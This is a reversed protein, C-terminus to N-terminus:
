DLDLEIAAGSAQLESQLKRAEDFPLGSKLTAPVNDVVERVSQGTMARIARVAAIRQAGFGTLVVDVHTPESPAVAQKVPDIVEITSARAPEIGYEEKLIDALEKVDKVTLNVLEEALKKLDAM